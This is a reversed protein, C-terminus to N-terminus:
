NEGYIAITTAEGKAITSSGWVSQSGWLSQNNWLSQNDWLTQTGRLFFMNDWLTQNDWLSQNGWLSQNDWLSQSGCISSSPCLLSTVHTVPDTVVFPSLASGTFLTTDALAAGIDLYGAGVTYIDYNSLYTNGAVPDFVSSTLPFVKSATHMLRAKVQDPTLSPYAQVLLAAAGSVVAAAMSTGSLAYYKNSPNNPASSQYYPLPVNNQPYLSNLNGNSSLLSVIRNGPAVIDPKVVHDVMTPCKSSYSAVLDDSRQPTGMTKMAGVTIVYPDNGPATITGYGQTGASNDRGNNGAAVVVVIGAKWAAEVAQCLPDLTYSEYVPRGLSLNIVRINYQSKLQITRSIAAIVASDTGQGNQDLVRLNLLNAVPAMGKLNRFCKSCTSDTGDGAIIGAVHEGHGHHDDTGGGVFDQNYVIRHSQHTLDDHNSIGSDIVAVGIGTGTLGTQWAAAANVAAATTDLSSRLKHDPSIHFVEPDNALETLVGAPVSYAAGRVAPLEALLFGGRRRVRRHHLESPPHKYQIIVNVPTNPNSGPLHGPKSQQSYTTGVLLACGALLTLYKLPHRRAHSLPATM